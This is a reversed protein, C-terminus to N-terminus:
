LAEVGDLDRRRELLQILNRYADARARDYTDHTMPRTVAVRYKAIAEDPKDQKVLLEGWNAWLWLNPPDAKAADVFLQEAKGLQGQHTYVYGLLIKANSNDPRIQLASELLNEAHHLGDPGWNERMAVRALEVYAADLQADQSILRELIGKAEGIARSGGSDILAVARELNDRPSDRAFSQNQIYTAFNPWEIPQEVTDSALITEAPLPERLAAVVQKTSFQSGPYNIQVTVHHAGRQPPPIFTRRNEYAQAQPEATPRPLLDVRLIVARPEGTFFYDFDATWLGNADATVKLDSVSNKGALPALPGSPKGYGGVLRLVPQRFQWGLLVLLVAM